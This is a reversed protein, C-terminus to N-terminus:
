AETHSFTPHVTDSQLGSVNNLIVSSVGRPEGCKKGPSHKLNRGRPFLQSIPHQVGLSAVSAVSLNM